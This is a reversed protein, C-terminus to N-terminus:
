VSIAHAHLFNGNVVIEQLTRASLLIPGDPRAAKTASAFRAM